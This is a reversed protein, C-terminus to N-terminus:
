MSTDIIHINGVNFNMTMTEKANVFMTYSTIKESVFKIYSVFCLDVNQSSVNLFQVTEHCLSM